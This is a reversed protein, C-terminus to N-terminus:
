HSLARALVEYGRRAGEIPDALGDYEVIHSWVGASEAAETVAAWDTSGTGVYPGHAMWSRIQAGIEEQSHPKMLRISDPPATGDSAEKVHVFQCRGAFRNLAAVADGGARGVWGLDLELFLNEPAAEDVLWDLAFRREVEEFELLHNHLGLEFGESRLRSGLDNLRRGAARWASATRDGMEEATLIAIVLRKNGVARQYRLQADLDSSLLAMRTHTAVVEVGHAALAEAAVAPDEPLGGRPFFEVHRFGLSRALAVKAEFSLDLDRFTYM